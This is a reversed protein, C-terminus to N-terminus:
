MTALHDFIEEENGGRAEELAGSSGACIEWSREAPTVCLLSPFTSSNCVSPNSLFPRFRLLLERQRVFSLADDFDSPTGLSATATKRKRKFSLCSQRPHLTNSLTLSHQFLHRPVLFDLPASCPTTSECMCM